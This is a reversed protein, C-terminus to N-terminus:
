PDFISSVGRDRQRQRQKQRERDRHREAETDTERERGGEGWRGRWLLKLDPFAHTHCPRYSTLTEVPLLQPTDGQDVATAEQGDGQGSPYLFRHLVSLWQRALLLHCDLINLYPGPETSSHWGRGWVTPFWIGLM